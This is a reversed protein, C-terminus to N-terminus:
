RDNRALWDAAARFAPLTTPDIPVNAANPNSAVRAIVTETKPDIWIAQGHVGRAMLVGDPAVWWQSRYSWGPLTPYTAAPFKKNSSILGNSM